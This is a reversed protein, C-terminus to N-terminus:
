GAPDDGYEQVPVQSFLDPSSDKSGQLGRHKYLMQCEWIGAVACVWILRMGGLLSPRRKTLKESDDAQRQACGAPTRPPTDRTVPSVLRRRLRSEVIGSCEYRRCWHSTDVVTGSLKRASRSKGNSMTRRSRFHLCSSTIM